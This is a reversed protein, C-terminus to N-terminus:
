TGPSVAFAAWVVKGDDQPESGWRASVLEVLHLGRGGPTDTSPRGRSRVPRAPAGDFVAIYLYQPRLRIQLTMVTRAHTVANSM